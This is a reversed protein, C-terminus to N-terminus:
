GPGMRGAGSSHIGPKRQAEGPIVDSHVYHRSDMHV